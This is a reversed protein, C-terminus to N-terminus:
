SRVFSVIGKIVNYVIYGVLILPWSVVCLVVLLVVLIFLILESLSPDSERVAPGNQREEETEWDAPDSFGRSGLDTPGRFSSSM